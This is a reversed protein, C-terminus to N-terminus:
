WSLAVYRQMGEKRVLLLVRKERSSGRVAREFDAANTVPNRNVQVIVSGPEIGAMAAISGPTVETVLVGEGARADFREALQPTLTQVTLGLEETSQAPGLAVLKDESLRGLTVTLDKREGDRMVTLQERSGPPTLAVQNRFRGVNTVPSGRYAVIVDGQRLGARAAPSEESVQAVLIGKGQEL